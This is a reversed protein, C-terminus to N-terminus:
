VGRVVLRKVRHGEVYVTLQLREKCVKLVLKGVAPECARFSHKDTCSCVVFGEFDGFCDYLVECVKGTFEEHGEHEPEGKGGQYGNLSPPIANAKGGLGDVRAGILELYRVLVPYWRNTKPMAELRAKFIALLDEEAPLMAEKTKVPIKVQFTGIVYREIIGKVEVAAQRKAMSAVVHTMPASAIKIPPPPPPPPAVKLQRTGIRRIVVNFEQGKKVTPPLDITLLGAFGDASGPPIPVYTVGSTTKCQITNPDSASLAQVGYMRSSLQVVESASAQPWYISAICGVPTNGWDIMLEDPFIALSPSLAKSARVDFTQPIRHTALTGPNASTTVQLNRQALEDSLEPSMTVGNANQIPAGSYAIQAVLCHHDGALLNQVKSGNVIFGPDYVNLFCVFYVWQSNGQNIDITQNNVGNTGYEPNNPDSFNPVNGTAFFPITHSDSPAQPWLPNGGSDNHSLYTYGPNWDTDATQTGWMRFFVKVGKAETVGKKGRLRVRAVAFNYNTFSVLGIRTSPSVSSDGTYADAQGPLVSSNVDFPDAGNPNGYTQNLFKILDRAYTYAAPISDASFQPGGAVPFPNLLPTATFVRLDQSLWPVNEKTPDPNAQVNTFYPDAGATFFFETNADLEKGLLTIKSAAAAPTEGSAPFAGETAATFRVDYPFLIRQPVYANTSQYEAGEVNLAATTGPFAITPLVPATAGAVQRNFGDLALWFGNPYRGASNDVIDTVEDKGYTNKVGWFSLSGLPYPNDLNGSTMTSTGPFANDLMLKFYPFPDSTDGTLNAYVGALQDAGAAVIQDISFGLQTYLYYIFLVACGCQPVFGNQTPDVHNVYDDRTASQLWTWAINYGGLSGLTQGNLLLFQAGLFRSLGEGASGENGNSQWNGGYWGKDQADMFMEVVESVLLYRVFWPDVSAAASNAALGPILTIPGSLNPWSAGTGGSATNGAQIQITMRGSWPSAIGGFWGTMLNFDTECNAVLANGVTKGVTANLTDDYEVQYRTTKGGNTLGTTIFNPM